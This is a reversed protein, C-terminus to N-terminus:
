EMGDNARRIDQILNDWQDDQHREIIKNGILWCWFRYALAKTKYGDVYWRRSVVTWRYDNGNQDTLRCVYPFKM